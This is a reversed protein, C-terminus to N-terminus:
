RVRIDGNHTAVRLLGKTEQKGVRCRLRGRGLEADNMQSPPVIRGNHTEAELWCSSGDHMRVDIGGNHSAIRASLNGPAMMACHIEGNHTEIDASTSGISAEVDGNHSEIHMADKTGSATVNGNHTELRLALHEPVVMTFTISPSCNNLQPKPYESWIRLAEGDHQQGFSMLQLNDDAEIQTHGRVKMEARLEITDSANSGVVTISGNHTKCHLLTAQEISIKAEVVKSAPIRPFSCAALFLPVLLLTPRM